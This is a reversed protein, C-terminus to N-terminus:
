EPCFTGFYAMFSLLDNINVVLNGDFDAPCNSTCPPFICSGDDVTASLSYNTADPYTCGPVGCTTVTINSTFSTSGFANSVTLTVPFVGDETYCINSPNAVTSTLPTAGSFSWAYGTPTGGTVQSTFSICQGVCLLQDTSTFSAQPIPTGAPCCSGGDSMNVTEDEWCKYQTDYLYLTGGMTDTFYEAIQASTNCGGQYGTGCSYGCIIYPYGFPDSQTANPAFLISTIGPSVGDITTTTVGTGCNDNTGIYGAYIVQTINGVYPGAFHIAAAEYTCIGVKLNPINLDCYITVEGGDYNTYVAVNGSPSCTQAFSFQFLLLFILVTFCPKM